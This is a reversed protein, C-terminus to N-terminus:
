GCSGDAGDKKDNGLIRIGEKNADERHEPKNSFVADFYIDCSTDDFLESLGNLIHTMCFPCRPCRMRLPKSSFHIGM